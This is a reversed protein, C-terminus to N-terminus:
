NEATEKLELCLMTLDDFQPTDGSFANVDQLVGELIERPPATRHENLATIMRDLSFMRGEANTAEPLGDTYLFLKDGARLRFEADKYQMGELGGLVFGHPGKEIAFGGDKRCVAPYEHGANAYVLRGTSIELIGLWVTVFMDAGNRACISANVDRLIEAPTGGMQARGTILINAQMMFLAAPVGKGSVDAMLLALHDSDILFFNYFDGGVEKAPDMVAYIDFERRDPFAPFVDPLSDSQIQAAISLEAGMREKEATAATLNRIYEEMDTEMSDISLALERIVDYRSLAGLPESKANEKAFRSAEASVREVPRVVSRRLFLTALLSVALVAFLVGALIMLLYPRFADTMERMPRQICLLATVDGADDKVPVLTTIHPHSGDNTQLRFVTEYDSRKEYLAQYKQRYEDNTTDRKHGLEWETYSSDDVSNNVSNFVSVFRGYDSRDVAIVYILSVNLKRCSVDLDNKTVIYEWTEEGALYDDILDGDVYSTVSDAMHYTVTAYENKFASVFCNNGIYVVALGFLLILGVLGGIVSVSMDSRLRRLLKM